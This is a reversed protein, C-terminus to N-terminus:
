AAVHHQGSRDGVVSPLASKVSGLKCCGHRSSFLCMTSTPSGGNREEEEGGVEVDLASAPRSCMFFPRRRPLMSMRTVSSVSSSFSSSSLSSSSSSISSAPTVHAIRRVRLMRLLVTFFLKSGRGKKASKERSKTSHSPPPTLPPISANSFTHKPTGPQSEWMFPVAGTAGYYVRFSSEAEVMSSEKSLLRSFFKDDQKIELSKPPIENTPKSSPM